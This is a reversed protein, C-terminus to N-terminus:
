SLSGSLTGTFHAGASTTSLTATGSLGDFQGTGSGFSITDVESYPNGYPNTGAHDHATGSPRPCFTGSVPGSISSGDSALTLTFTGDVDLCRGDPEETPGFVYTWSATGFGDLDITGCEGPEDPPCPVFRPLLVTTSFSGALAVSASAAVPVV